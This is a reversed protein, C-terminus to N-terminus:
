FGFENECVLGDEIYFKELYIQFDISTPQVIMICNVVTKPAIKLQM